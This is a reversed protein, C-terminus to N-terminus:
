NVVGGIEIGHKYTYYSGYLESLPVYMTFKSVTFILGDICRM